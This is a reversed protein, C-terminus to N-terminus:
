SLLKVSQGAEKASYVSKKLEKDILWWKHTMRSWYGNKPEGRDKTKNSIKKRKYNAM